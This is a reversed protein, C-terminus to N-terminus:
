RVAKNYVEWVGIGLLGMVAEFMWQKIDHKPRGENKAFELNSIAMAYLKDFAAIKEADTYAKPAFTPLQGERMKRIIAEEEPTLKM